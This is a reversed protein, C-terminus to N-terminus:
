DSCDISALIGNAGSVTFPYADILPIIKIM